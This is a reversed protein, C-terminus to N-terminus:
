AHPGRGNDFCLVQEIGRDSACLRCAVFWLKRYQGSTLGVDHVTNDHDCTACNNDGFDMGFYAKVLEMGYEGADDAIDSLKAVSRGDYEKFAQRVNINPM